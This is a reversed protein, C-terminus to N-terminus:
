AGFLRDVLNAWGSSHAITFKAVLAAVYLGLGLMTAWHPRRRTRVDYVIIAAFFALEIALIAPVPLGLWGVLRAVAPDIMLLASLLMLRKHAQANRRHWLALSYAIVFNVIDTFPFVVSTSRDLGAISWDPRLYAGRIVFYGLVVIALALMVSSAGLRRHMAINGSRVLSAQAVLLLFWGVFVAGHVHLLAPLALVGGDRLFAGPFFGAVVVALLSAAMITYFREGRSGIM